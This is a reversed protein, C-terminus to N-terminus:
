TKFRDTKKQEYSSSLVLTGCGPLKGPATSPVDQIVPPVVFSFQAPQRVPTAGPSKTKILGFARPWVCTTNIEKNAAALGALFLWYVFLLYVEKLSRNCLGKACHLVKSRWACTLLASDAVSIDAGLSARPFLFSFYSTPFGGLRRAPTVKCSNCRQCLHNPLMKKDYSLLPM